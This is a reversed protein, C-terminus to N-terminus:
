NIREYGVMRVSVEGEDIWDGTVEEGVWETVEEASATRWGNGTSFDEVPFFTDCDFGAGMETGTEEREGSAKKRRVETMVIRVKRGEGLAARLGPDTRLATAYIEGGGIIFVKGLTKKGCAGYTKELDSIATELSPSVMADTVGEDGATGTAAAAARERARQNRAELERKVMGKVSGEVDRSVVVSVRGRLPRLKAPISEYTKRGMIIANVAQPTPPPRTTVRAFFTMDAKIRPWPLTANKGIGLRPPTAPSPSAPIPTTAVILILPPPTPPMKPKLM